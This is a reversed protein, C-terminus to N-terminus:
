YVGSSFCPHNAPRAATASPNFLPRVARQVFFWESIENREVKALINALDDVLDRYRQLHALQKPYVTRQELPIRKLDPSVFSRHPHKM